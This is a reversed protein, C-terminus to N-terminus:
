ITLSKSKELIIFIYYTQLYGFVWQLCWLLPSVEPTIYVQTHVGSQAFKSDLCLRQPNRYVCVSM